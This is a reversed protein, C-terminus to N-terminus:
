QEKIDHETIEILWYSEDKLEERRKNMERVGTKKDYFKGLTVRYM